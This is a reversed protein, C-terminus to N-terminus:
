LQQLTFGWWIERVNMLMRNSKVNVCYVEWRQVLKGENNWTKVRNNKELQVPLTQDRPSIWSGINAIIVNVFYSCAAQTYKIACTIVNFQQIPTKLLNQRNLRGRITQQFFPTKVLFFLWASNITDSSM